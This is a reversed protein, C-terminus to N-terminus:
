STPNTVAYVFSTLVRGVSNRLYVADGGDNLWPGDNRGEVNITVQKRPDLVIWADNDANNAIVPAADTHGASAWAMEDAARDHDLTTSTCDIVTTSSATKCLWVVNGARDTLRYGKLSKASYSYNALTVSEVGPSLDLTSDGLSSFGVGTLRVQSVPGQASASASVATVLLGAGAISALAIRIIKRM